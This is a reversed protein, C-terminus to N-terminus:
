RRVFRSSKKLSSYVTITPRNRSVVSAVPALISTTFHTITILRSSESIKGFTFILLYTTLYLQLATLWISHRVPDYKSVVFMIFQYGAVIAFAALPSAAMLSLCYSFLTATIGYLVFM